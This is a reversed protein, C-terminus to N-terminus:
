GGVYEGIGQLVAPVIWFLVIWWGSKNRDHLRKIGIALSVWLLPIYIIVLLLAAGGLASLDGTLIAGGAIMFVILILIVAIVVMALTTLWFPQRNLRGRFSFLIQSIPM